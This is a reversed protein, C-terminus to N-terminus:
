KVKVLVLKDWSFETIKYRTIVDPDDKFFIIENKANNYYWYGKTDNILAIYGINGRYYTSKFNNYYDYRLYTGQIYLSRNYKPGNDIDYKILNITDLDLLKITDTYTFEWSGIFDEENLETTIANANSFYYENYFHQGTLKNRYGKSFIFQNCTIKHLNYISTDNEIENVVEISYDRPVFTGEYKNLKWKFEKDTYEDMFVYKDDLPRNKRSIYVKDKKFNMTLNVQNSDLWITQTDKFIIPAIKMKVLVWKTQILEKLYEQSYSTNSFLILIVPILLIKSKV